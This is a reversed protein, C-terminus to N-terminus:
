QFINKIKEIIKNKRSEVKVPVSASIYADTVNLTAILKTIFPFFQYNNLILNRAETIADINKEWSKNKIANKIIEIAAIPEHIDIKIFSGKPFFDEINKCGYYVPMTYSLFADAIKETWYDKDSYNEIALTYRYPYVGDFKDEIPNIGRGFFDINLDSQKLIELFRLRPEHGPNVNSDSTVWSIKNQKESNTFQLDVLQDYDKNILWPLAAQTNIIKPSKKKDFSCIITDFYPFYSKLYNNREYPPEQIMLIRGGKRCKIKINKVPHNLVVVYDCQKIEDFTFQIDQWIGKSGPTQRFVNPFKYNSQIFVLM